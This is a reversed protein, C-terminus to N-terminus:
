ERKDSRQDIGVYATLGSADANYIRTIANETVLRKGDHDIEVAQSPKPNFRDARMAYHIQCGAIIMDGIVVYWNTSNRNTKLGLAMESDVVAHVTGFAAHYNERDPAFFWNDPTILYKQGIQM